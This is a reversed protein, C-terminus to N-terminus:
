IVVITLLATAPFASLVEVIELTVPHGGWDWKSGVIGGRDVIGKSDVIGGSDVVAVTGELGLTIPEPTENAGNGIPMVGSAGRGPAARLEEIPVPARGVMGMPEDWMAVPIDLLRETGGGFRPPAVKLEKPNDAAESPVPVPM